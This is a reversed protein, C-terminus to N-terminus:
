SARKPPKGRKGLRTERYANVSDDTILRGFRTQVTELEGRSVISAVTSVDLGLRAAVKPVTLLHDLEESM